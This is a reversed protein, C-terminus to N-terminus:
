QIRKLGNSESFALIVGLSNGGVSPVEFSVGEIVNGIVNKRSGKVGMSGTAALFTSSPAFFPAYSKCSYYCKITSNEARSFRSPYNSHSQGFLNYTVSFLILFTLIKLPHEIFRGYMTNNSCTKM